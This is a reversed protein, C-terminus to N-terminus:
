RVLIRSCLFRHPGDLFINRCSFLEMEFSYDEHVRFLKVVTKIVTLEARFCKMADNWRKARYVRFIIYGIIANWTQTDRRSSRSVHCSSNMRSVRVRTTVSKRMYLPTKGEEFSMKATVFRIARRVYRWTYWTFIQIDRSPSSFHFTPLLTTEIWCCENSGHM